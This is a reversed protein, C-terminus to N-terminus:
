RSFVPGTGSNARPLSSSRSASNILESLDRRDGLPILTGPPRPCYNRLHVIKCNPLALQLKKVGEDTVKTASLDLEKLELLGELSELGADTIQTDGLDLECLHKLGKLHTLGPDTIQTGDLYVRDTM